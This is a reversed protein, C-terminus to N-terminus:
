MTSQRAKVASGLGLHQHIGLAVHFEIKDITQDRLMFKAKDCSEATLMLQWITLFHPLLPWRNLFRPSILNSNRTDLCLHIWPDSMFGSHGFTYRDLLGFMSHRGRLEPRELQFYLRLRERFVIPPFSSALATEPGFSLILSQDGYDILNLSGIHLLYCYGSMLRLWSVLVIQLSPKCMPVAWWTQLSQSTTTIMRALETLGLQCFGLDSHKGGYWAIRWDKDLGVSVGAHHPKRSAIDKTIGMRSTVM